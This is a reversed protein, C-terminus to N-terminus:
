LAPTTRGQRGDIGVQTRLDEVELWFERLDECESEPLASLRDQDRIGGLATSVQWQGLRRRVRQLDQPKGTKLLAACVPWTSAQAM